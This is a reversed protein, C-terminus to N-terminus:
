LALVPVVVRLENPDVVTIGLPQPVLVLLPVHNRSNLEMKMLM